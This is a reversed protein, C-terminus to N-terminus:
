AMRWARRRRGKSAHMEDGSGVVYHSPDVFDLLTRLQMRGDVMMKSMLPMCAEAPWGGTHLKANGHM